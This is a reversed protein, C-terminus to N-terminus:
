KILLCFGFRLIQKKNLAFPSVLGMNASLMHQFIDPEKGLCAVVKEVLWPYKSLQLVMGTVQHYAKMIKEYAQIYNTLNQKNIPIDKLLLPIIHKELLLAQETALSIGEGTIADLYGAADGMLLLKKSIPSSSNQQLPGIARAQDLPRANRIKKSLEPFHSLLSPYLQKGKKLNKWQKNNWLFALDITTESTPTLYAEIGNKWHVEVFSSFPEIEFHQRVG